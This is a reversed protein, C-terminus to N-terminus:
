PRCGVERFGVARVPWPCGREAEVVVAVTHCNPRYGSSSCRVRNRIRPVSRTGFVGSEHSPIRTMSGAANMMVGPHQEADFLSGFRQSGFRRGGTVTLSWSWEAWVAVEWSDM